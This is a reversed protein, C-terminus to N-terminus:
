RPMPLLPPRSQGFAVAEDLVPVVVMSAPVILNTLAQTASSDDVRSSGYMPVLWVM